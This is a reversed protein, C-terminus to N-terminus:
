SCNADVAGGITNQQPCGFLKMVGHLDLIALFLQLSGNTVLEQIGQPNKLPTYQQISPVMATEYMWEHSLGFINGISPPRNGM